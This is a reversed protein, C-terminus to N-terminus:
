IPQNSFSFGMAMSFEVVIDDRNYAEIRVRIDNM